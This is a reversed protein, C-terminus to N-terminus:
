KKRPKPTKPTRSPSQNELQEIRKHIGTLLVSVSDRQRELETDLRHLDSALKALVPGLSTNEDSDEFFISVPVGFVQAINYLIVVSIAPGVAEVFVLHAHSIGAAAALDRQSMGSEARLRKITDAIRLLLPHPENGTGNGNKEIVKKAVDVGSKANADM